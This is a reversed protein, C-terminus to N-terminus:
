NLPNALRDVLSQWKNEYNEIEELKLVWPNPKRVEKREKDLMQEWTYKNKQGYKEAYRKVSSKLLRKVESRSVIFYRPRDLDSIHVFVFDSAVNKEIDDEYSAWLTSTIPFERRDSCKVQIGIGADTKPNLVVIDYGKTNRSTPLAVLNRKSLEACVLFLGVNGKFKKEIAM